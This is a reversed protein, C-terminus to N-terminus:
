YLLKEKEAIELAAEFNRKLELSLYEKKRTHFAIYQFIFSLFFDEAFDVLWQKHERIEYYFPILGNNQSFIINFLRELLASKGTKRRSLMATSKSIKRKINEAWLLLSKLEKTRGTFLEPMGIREELYIQM